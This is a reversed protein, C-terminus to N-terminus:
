FAADRVLGAPRPGPPRADAGKILLWLMIRFEGAARALMTVREYLIIRPGDLLLSIVSHAVYAVGAIVLLIGLVRPLFRSKMVLMGFPMRASGRPRKPEPRIAGLVIRLRPRRKGRLAVLSVYGIRGGLRWAACRFQSIRAPLARYARRDPPGLSERLQEAVWVTKFQFEQDVGTFSHKAWRHRHNAANLFVAERPEGAKSATAALRHLIAAPSPLDPPSELLTNSV